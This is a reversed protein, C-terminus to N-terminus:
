WKNFQNSSWIVGIIALAMLTFGIIAPALTIWWPWRIEGTTGLVVFVVQLLVLAILGGKILKSKNSQKSM